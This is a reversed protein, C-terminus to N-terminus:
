KNDQVQAKADMIDELAAQQEEDKVVGESASVMTLFRGNVVAINYGAENIMDAYYQAGEPTEFEMVPIHTDDIVVNFSDTVGEAFTMQSGLLEELEYGAADARDKIEDLSKFTGASLAPSAPPDVTQAAEADPSASQEAPSYTDPLPIKRVIKLGAQAGCGSLAAIIFVLILFLPITKKM